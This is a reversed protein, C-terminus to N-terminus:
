HPPPLDRQRPMPGFAQELQRQVDELTKGYVIAIDDTGGFAALSKMIPQGEKLRRVSEEDIGLIILGGTTKAILM